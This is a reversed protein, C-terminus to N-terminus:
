VGGPAVYCYVQGNGALFIVGHGTPNGDDWKLKNHPVVIETGVPLPPRYEIVREDTIIAIYEGNPGVKYSDAWYADSEGCCSMRPNDPQMLERFWKRVAADQKSWQGNDRGLAISTLMIVTALTYTLLDRM